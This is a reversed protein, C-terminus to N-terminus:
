AFLSDLLSPYKPARETKGLGYEVAFTPQGGNATRKIRASRVLSDLIDELESRNIRTRTSIESATQQPVRILCRIVDQENGNFTLLDLPTLKM